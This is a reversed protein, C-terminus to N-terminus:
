PESEKTKLLGLTKMADHERKLLILAALKDGNTGELAINWVEPFDRALAEYTENLTM